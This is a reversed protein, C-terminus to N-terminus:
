GCRRGRSRSPALQAELCRSWDVVHGTFAALKAGLYLADLSRWATPDATGASPWEGAQSECALQRRRQYDNPLPITLCVGGALDPDKREHRPAVYAFPHQRIGMRGHCSPQHDVIM